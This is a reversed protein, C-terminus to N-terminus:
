DIIKKLLSIVKDYEMLFADHGFDSHIVHHHITKGVAHARKVTERDEDIPFFLDSDISLIHIESSISRLIDELTNRGQTIDITGLIHNMNKYAQLSFRQVLKEGHYALWSEVNFMNRDSNWSRDFRLKFSQPTRYCLMAHMRAIELPEPHTELIKKQLFVNALMWDTAKWDGSIPILKQIFDPFKAAM